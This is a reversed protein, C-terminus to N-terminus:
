SVHHKLQSNVISRCDVVQHNASGYLLVHLPSFLEEDEDSLDEDDSDESELYKIHEKIFNMQKDLQESEELSKEICEIEKDTLGKEQTDLVNNNGSGTGSLKNNNDDNNIKGEKLLKKIKAVLNQIKVKEEDDIPEDKEQNSPNVVSSVNNESQKNNIENTNEPLDNKEEDRVIVQFTSFLIMKTWFDQRKKTWFICKKNKM